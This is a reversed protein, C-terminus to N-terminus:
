SSSQCEENVEWFAYSDKNTIYMWFGGPLCAGLILSHINRCWHQNLSRPNQTSEQGFNPLTIRSLMSRIEFHRSSTWRRFIELISRLEAEFESFKFLTRTLIQKSTLSEATSSSQFIRLRVHGHIGLTGQVASLAWLQTPFIAQRFNRRPWHTKKQKWIACHFPEISHQAKETTWVFISPESAENRDKHVSAFLLPSLDPLSYEAYMASSLHNRNAVM